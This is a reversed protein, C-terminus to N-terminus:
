SQVEKINTRDHKTDPQSVVLFELTGTTENAIFHKTMPAVLIGQHEVIIEKKGDYYFTATGKLIFFFQQAQSHFHLKEQTDSPMSEQKVSLAPTDALIWSDCNNGWQYHNASHKDIINNM